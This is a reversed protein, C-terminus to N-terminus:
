VHRHVNTYRNTYRSPRATYAGLQPRCLACAWDAVNPVLDSTAVGYIAAIM